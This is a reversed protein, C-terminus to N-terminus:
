FFLQTSQLRTLSLFGEYVYLFGLLKLFGSIKKSSRNGERPLKTLLLFNPYRFVLGVKKIDVKLVSM